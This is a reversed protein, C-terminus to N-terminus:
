LNLSVFMVSFVSIWLKPFLLSYVIQLAELIGLPWSFESCMELLFFCILIQLSSLAKQKSLINESHM